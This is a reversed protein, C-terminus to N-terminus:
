PPLSRWDPPAPVGYWVTIAVEFQQNAFVNTSSPEVRVLANDSPPTGNTAEVRGLFPSPGGGEHRETAVVLDWRFETAGAAPRVADEWQGEVIITRWNPELPVTFNCECAGLTPASAGGHLQVFGRFTFTQNFARAAVDVPLVLRAETVNGAVVQVTTQQGLFLPATAKVIFSGPALGTFEFTGNQDTLTRNGDITVNAGAIPALAENLVFGEISGTTPVDVKPADKGGFCGSMAVLALLAAIAEHRM